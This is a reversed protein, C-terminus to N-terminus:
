NRPSHLRKLLQEMTSQMGANRPLVTNQLMKFVNNLFAPNDMRGGSQLLAQVAGINVSQPDLKRGVRMLEEAAQRNGRLVEVMALGGYTDGFNRDVALAQEFAAQAADINQSLLHMWALAHWTGLHTPMHRTAAELAACARPLDGGAAHALGLGLHARGSDPSQALSAEFRQLAEDVDAVALSLFGGVMLMEPDLPGAEVAQAYLHAADEGREADLYLTALASALAGHIPTREECLAAEALTIAAEMDGLRHLSRVRLFLAQSRLPEQVGPQCAEELMQAAAQVEGLALQVRALELKLAPEHVGQEVLGTLVGRAQQLNGAHHEIVGLRYLFHADAPEHALAAEVPGRAEAHRGANLLLDALDALLALNSPDQVLYGQLRRVSSDFAANDKTSSSM